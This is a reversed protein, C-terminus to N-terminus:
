RSASAVSFEEVISSLTDNLRRGSISRSVDELSKKWVVGTRPNFLGIHTFTMSHSVYALASYTLLQRLDVVRFARDGAKVEYLCSGQVLDGECASLLGCGNFQPRLVTPEDGSFFSLLRLALDGSEKRCEDDIDAVEVHTTSSFRRVYDISEQLRSDVYALIQSRAVLASKGHLDCFARFATENVIARMGKPARPLLPPEIREVFMNEFAWFGDALPALVRWASSYHTAFQHESIM